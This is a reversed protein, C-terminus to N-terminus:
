CGTRSTATTPASTATSVSAAAVVGGAAWDARGGRGPRRQATRSPARAGRRSPTSARGPRTTARGPRPLVARGGDPEQARPPPRVHPRNSPRSRRRRSRGPPQPRGPRPSVPAGPRHPAASPAVYTGGAARTTAAYTLPGGLRRPSRRDGTVPDGLRLCHVYDSARPDTPSGFLTVHTRVLGGHGLDHHHDVNRYAGQRSTTRSGAADVTQHFGAVNRYARQRSTTRSMATTFSAESSSALNRYARQRSTTRSGQSSAHGNVQASTGHNCVGGGPLAPDVVSLPGAATNTSTV